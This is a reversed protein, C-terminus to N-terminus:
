LSHTLSAPSPTVIPLALLFSFRFMLDESRRQLCRIRQNELDIDQDLKQIQMQQTMIFDKNDEGSAAKVPTPMMFFGMGASSPSIPRERETAEKLVEMSLKKQSIYSKVREQTEKLEKQVDEFILQTIETSFCLNIIIGFHEANVQMQQTFSSTYTNYAIQAMEFYQQRQAQPYFYNLSQSQYKQCDMYAQMATNYLEELQKELHLLKSKDIQYAALM